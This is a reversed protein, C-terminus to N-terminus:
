LVGEAQLVLLARCVALPVADASACDNDYWKEDKRPLYLGDVEGDYGVLWLDLASRQLTLPDGEHFLPLAEWVAGMATGADTSYYKILPVCKPAPKPHQRPSCRTYEHEHCRRCWRYTRCDDTEGEEPNWNHKALTRTNIGLAEAVLRDMEPGAPTAMIEGRTM